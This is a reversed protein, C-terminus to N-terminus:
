PNDLEYQLRVRDVKSLLPFLADWDDRPVGYKLCLETALEYARNKEGGSITELEEKTLKRLSM